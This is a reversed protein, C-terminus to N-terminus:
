NASFNRNTLEGNISSLVEERKTVVRRLMFQLMFVAEHCLLLLLLLLM